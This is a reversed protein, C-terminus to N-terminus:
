FKRLTQSSVQGDNLLLTMRLLNASMNCLEEKMQDSVSPDFGEPYPDGENEGLANIINDITWIARCMLYRRGRWSKITEKESNDMM